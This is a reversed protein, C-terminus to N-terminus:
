KVRWYDESQIELLDINLSLFIKSWISHIGDYHFKEWTVFISWCRDQDELSHCFSCLGGFSNFIIVSHFEVSKQYNCNIDALKISCIESLHLECPCFVQIHPFGIRAHIDKPEVAEFINEADTLVTASNYPGRIYQFFAIKVSMSKIYMPNLICKDLGL